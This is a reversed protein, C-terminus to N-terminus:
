DSVSDKPQKPPEDEKEPVSVAGITAPYTTVKVERVQPQPVEKKESM